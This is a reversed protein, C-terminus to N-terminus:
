LIHSSFASWYDSISACSKFVWWCFIVTTISHNGYYYRIFFACIFMYFSRRHSAYTQVVTKRWENKTWESLWQRLTICIKLSYDHILVLFFCFTRLCVFHFFARLINNCSSNIRLFTPFHINSSTHLVSGFIYFSQNTDVSKCYSKKHKSHDKEKKGGWWLQRYWLRNLRKKNLDKEFALLARINKKGTEIVICYRGFLLLVGEIFVGIFVKRKIKM